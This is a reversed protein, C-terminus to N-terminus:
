NRNFMAEPEEITMLCCGSEWLIVFREWTERNKEEKKWIKNNLAFRNEILVEEEEKMVNSLMWHTNSVPWVYMALAYIEVGFKHM